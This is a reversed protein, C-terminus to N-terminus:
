ESQMLAQMVSYVAGAEGGLISILLVLVRIRAFLVPYLEM